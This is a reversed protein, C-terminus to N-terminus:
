ARASIADGNKELRLTVTQESAGNQPMLQVTLTANTHTNDRFARVIRMLEEDDVSRVLDIDFGGALLAENMASWLEDEVTALSTEPIAIHMREGMFELLETRGWERIDFAQQGLWNEAETESVRFGQREAATLVDAATIQISITKPM